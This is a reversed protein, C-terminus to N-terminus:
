SSARLRVSEKGFMKSGVKLALSFPYEDEAMEKVFLSVFDCQQLNHRMRGCGYCFVLLNEYKFPVWTKVRADLVIFIGRRLAKKVNLRVKIRCYVEKVEFEIFWRVYIWHCANSRESKM